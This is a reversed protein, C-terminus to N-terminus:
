ANLEAKFGKLILECLKKPYHQTEKWNVDKSPLHDHYGDCVCSKLSELLRASDTDIRWTKKVLQSKQMLDVSCAEVFTSCLAGKRLFEKTQNWGWYACRKPWEIAVFDAVESSRLFRELAEKPNSVVRSSSKKLCFCQFLCGGASPISSWLVVLKGKKKHSLTAERTEEM